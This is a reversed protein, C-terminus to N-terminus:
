GSSDTPPADSKATAASPEDAERVLVFRWAGETSLFAVIGEQDARTILNRIEGIDDMHHVALTDGIDWGTVQRVNVECRCNPDIFVNWRNEGSQFATVRGDAKIGSVWDKGDSEVVILGQRSIVTQAAGDIWLRTQSFDPGSVYYGRPALQVTQKNHVYERPEDAFNVVVEFENDFRTRQMARDDSLFEHSLMQAFAVKEHLQCTDHYTRLFRHYDAPLQYGTNDMWLLPTTGYLINFLDKRDALDPAAQYLMGATDGWYWTTVACDHYVLEWLPIRHAFGMGYKLYNASLQEATPRKLYGAPWSSWWFPGSMGGEFYEVQDAVWDNGHETGLVLGYSNLREFLARRNTLDQRRDFTHKPHYDEFLEAAAAVDVFRANYPRWSLEQEVYASAAANWTGSSRWYMHEGSSLTWGRKPPGGPRERIATELVEDRQFGTPGERIDTYSDYRGTLYGQENLWQIIGPDKCTNVIGKSIGLPRMQRIFQTPFRGGWLSPAGRLREVAPKEKAKEELTKFRGTSKLYERYNQALSVYQGETTLTISAKRPYSFSDASQLWRTEPWHRGDDHPVFAVEADAPTEFLLMMGDGRVSDFLGVWPMDLCHTSGYVRLPWKAYTADHQDLLVGCSRDCFVLHGHQMDTHFRPPFHRGGAMPDNTAEPTITFEVKRPSQIQVKAHVPQRAFHDYLDLSLIHPGTSEVQYLTLWKSVPVSQWVRGTRIDSIRYINSECDVEFNIEERGIQMSEPLEARKAELDPPLQLPDQVARAKRFEVPHPNMGFTLRVGRIREAAALPIRYQHWEGDPILSVREFRKWEPEDVTCWYVIYEEDGVPLQTKMELELVTPAAKLMDISTSTLVFDIVADVGETAGKVLKSNGKEELQCGIASLECVAQDFLDLEAANAHVGLSVVFWTLCFAFRCVWACAKSARVPIPQLGHQTCSQTQLVYTPKM